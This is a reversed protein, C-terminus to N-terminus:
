GLYRARAREMIACAEAESIEALDYMSGDRREEVLASTFEWVESDRSLHPRYTEDCSAVGAPSRGPLPHGHVAFATAADHV